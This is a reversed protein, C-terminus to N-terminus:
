QRAGPISGDLGHEYVHMDLMLQILARQLRAGLGQLLYFRSGSMKVGREFDIIGLEEGLEWHPKAPFGLEPEPIDGYRLVVNGTEDPGEPVEALPINPIRLLADRLATEVAKLEEELADIRGRMGQQEAILRQREQPDGDRRDGQERHQAGGEAAGARIIRRRQSDLRLADEIAGRNVAACRTVCEDPHERIFEASLM